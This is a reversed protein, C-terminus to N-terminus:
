FIDWGDGDCANRRVSMKGNDTLLTDHYKKLCLIHNDVRLTNPIRKPSILMVKENTATTKCGDWCVTESIFLLPQQMYANTATFVLFCIWLLRPWSLNCFRSYSGHSQLIFVFLWECPGLSAAVVGYMSDWRDWLSFQNIELPAVYSVKKMPLIAVTLQFPRRDNQHILQSNCHNSVVAVLVILTM